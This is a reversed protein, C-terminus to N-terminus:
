SLFDRLHGAVEGVDEPSWDDLEDSDGFGLRDPMVLLRDNGLLPAFPTYVRGSSLSPHLFVPPTGEGGGAVRVHVHGHRTPLLRRRIAISEARIAGESRRVSSM